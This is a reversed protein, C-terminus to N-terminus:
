NAQVVKGTAIVESNQPGESRGTVWVIDQIDVTGPYKQQAAELLKIYAQTTVAKKNFASDWSQATFSTQIAGNVTDGALAQIATGTAFIERNQDGAKGSTKWVIDQIDVTGPYKEQAAELLRIYAQTAVAKKNFGTDWISAAFITRVVSNAAEEAPLQVIKGSALIESNQPALGKGKTWVIDRINVAGGYKQQAAELLTSYAKTDVVKKNFLADWNQATFSTQVTGIAPEQASVIGAALFAALCALFVKKGARNVTVKKM